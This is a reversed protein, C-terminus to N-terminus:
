PNRVQPVGLYLKTTQLNKHTFNERLDFVTLGYASLFIKLHRLSRLVEAAEARALLAHSPLPLLEVVLAGSDFCSINSNRSNMARARM